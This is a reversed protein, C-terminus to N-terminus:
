RKIRKRPETNTSWHLSYTCTCYSNRARSFFAHLRGQKLTRASHTPSRQSHCIPLWGWRVSRHLYPTADQLLAPYSGQTPTTIYLYGTIITRTRYPLKARRASANLPPMQGLTATSPTPISDSRDTYSLYHLLRQVGARGYSPTAM